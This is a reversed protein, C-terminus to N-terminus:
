KESVSLSVTSLMLSETTAICGAVVSESEGDGVCTM